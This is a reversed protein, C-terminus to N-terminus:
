RCVPASPQWESGEPWVLKVTVSGLKLTDGDRIPSRNGPTVPAGNLYTGNTSRLDRLMFGEKGRLVESHM